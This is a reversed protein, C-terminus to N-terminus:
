NFSFFNCLCVWLRSSPSSQGKIETTSCSLNRLVTKLDILLSEVENKELYVELTVSDHYPDAGGFQHFDIGFIKRRIKDGDYVIAQEFIENLSPDDPDDRKACQKWDDVVEQFSSLKKQKFIIEVGREGIMKSAIAAILEHDFFYGGKFEPYHTNLALAIRAVPADIGLRWPKIDINKIYGTILYM